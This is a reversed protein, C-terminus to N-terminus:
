IVIVDCGTRVASYPVDGNSIVDSETFLGMGGAQKSVVECNFSMM